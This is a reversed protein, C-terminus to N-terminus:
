GVVAMLLLTVLVIATLVAGIAQKSKADPASRRSPDPVHPIADSVGDVPQQAGCSRCFVDSALISTACRECYVTAQSLVEPAPSLAAVFGAIDDIRWFERIVGDKFALYRADGDPAVGIRWGDVLWTANPAAQLRKQTAFASLHSRLDDIQTM